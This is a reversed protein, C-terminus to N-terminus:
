QLMMARIMPRNGSSKKDWRYTAMVNRGGKIVEGRVLYLGSLIGANQTTIANNVTSAIKLADNRTATNDQKITSANDASPNIENELEKMDDTSKVINSMFNNKKNDRAQELNHSIMKTSTKSTINERNIFDNLSKKAELEAVRFAERVASSSNGWVPAYGTTEISDLEGSLLGYTIKVGFRTFDNVALQDSIATTASAGPLVGAAPPKTSSCGTVAMLAVLTTATLIRHKM